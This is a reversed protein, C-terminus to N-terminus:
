TMVADSAPRNRQQGGDDQREGDTPQRQIQVVDDSVEM